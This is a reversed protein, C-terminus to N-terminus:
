AVFALLTKADNDDGFVLDIAAAMQSRLPKAATEFHGVQFALVLDSTDFDGDQNWDGEDYTTNGDSDMDAAFVATITADDIDLSEAIVHSEGFVGKGNQNEYWILSDMGALVDLDGDGDLDVARVSQYNVEDVWGPEEIPHPGSFNGRGDVNEYWNITGAITALLDVDGDVDLDAPDLSMGEPVASHVIM